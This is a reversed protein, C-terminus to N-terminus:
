YLGPAFRLKSPCGCSNAGTGARVIAIDGLSSTLRGNVTFGNQPRVGCWFTRPMRATIEIGGAPRHGHGRLVEGISLEVLEAAPAVAPKSQRANHWPGVDEQRASRTTSREWWNRRISRISVRFCSFVTVTTM